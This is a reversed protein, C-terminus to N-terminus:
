KGLKGDNGSDGSALGFTRERLFMLLAKRDRIPEMEDFSIPEGVTVRITTGMKNRMENLLLALRLNLSFQSVIQFLRSNQGHFYMPVVTARAERILKAVFVKWELDEARGWWSRSTAVGGSPFIVVAEGNKLRRIAEQRTAINIQQAERTERFDVPLLFSAIRDNRNLVENVLMCFDPRLGAAVAGMILGDIVGFPHNAVLVLPGEAPIAALRNRDLDVAVRLKELALSWLRVAPADSAEIENYLREIKPRGSVLEIGQILRRKWAPDRPDSYTLRVKM